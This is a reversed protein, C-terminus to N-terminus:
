GRARAHEADLAFIPCDRVLSVREPELVRLPKAIECPQQGLPPLFQVREIEDGAFSRVTPGVAGDLGSENGRPGAVGPLDDVRPRLGLIATPQGLELLLELLCPGEAVVLPGRAGLLLAVEKDRFERAREAEAPPGPAGGRRGLPRPDTNGAGDSRGDRADPLVAIGQALMELPRDLRSREARVPGIWVSRDVPLKLSANGGYRRQERRGTRSALGFPPRPSRPIDSTPAPVHLRDRALSPVTAAPTVQETLRSARRSRDKMPEGHVKRPSDPAPIAPSGADRTARHRPEHFKPMRDFASHHDGGRSAPAGGEVM